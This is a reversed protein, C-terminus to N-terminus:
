DALDSLGARNINDELTGNLVINFPGKELSCFSDNGPLQTTQFYAKVKAFGCTNQTAGSTHKSNILTSLEKRTLSIASVGMGDITLVQANKYNPASL